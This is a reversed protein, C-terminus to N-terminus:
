NTNEKLYWNSKIQNKSSEFFAKWSENIITGEVPKYIVTENSNVQFEIFKGKELDSRIEYAASKKFIREIEESYSKVYTLAESSDKGNASAYKIIDYFEANMVRNTDFDEHFIPLVYEEGQQTINIRSPIKQEGRTVITVGFLKKLDDQSLNEIVEYSKMEVQTGKPITQSCAVWSFLILSFLIKNTIM